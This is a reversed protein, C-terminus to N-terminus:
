KCKLPTPSDAAHEYLYSYINSLDADSLNAWEEQCGFENFNKGNFVAEWQAQTKADPNLPPKATDVEGRENCAKYVKRYIYKGKRKNGKDMALVAGISTFSFVVALAIFILKRIM